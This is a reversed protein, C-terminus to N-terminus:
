WIKEDRKWGEKREEEEGGRLIHSIARDFNADLIECTHSTRRWTVDERVGGLFKYVKIKIDPYWSVM